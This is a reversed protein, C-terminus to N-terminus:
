FSSFYTLLLIGKNETRSLLGLGRGCQLLITMIYKDEVNISSLSACASLSSVSEAVVETGLFHLSAGEACRGGPTQGAADGLWVKENQEGPCFTNKSQGSPSLWLADTNKARSSHFKNQYESPPSSFSDLFLLLLFLLLHLSLSFIFLFFYLIRSLPFISYLFFTSLFLPSLIFFFIIALM